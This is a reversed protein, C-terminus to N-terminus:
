SGVKTECRKCKRDPALEGSDARGTLASVDEGLVSFATDGAETGCLTKGVPGNETVASAPFAHLRTFMSANGGDYYEGSGSREWCVWKIAPTSM